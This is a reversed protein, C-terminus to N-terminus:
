FLPVGVGLIQAIPVVVWVAPSRTTLGAILGAAGVLGSRWVAERFDTRGGTAQQVGFASGIATGIVAGVIAGSMGRYDDNGLELSRDLYFGGVGVITGGLVGGVTAGWLRGGRSQDVADAFSSQMPSRTPSGIRGVNSDFAATSSRYQAVSPEASAAVVAILAVFVGLSRNLRHFPQM